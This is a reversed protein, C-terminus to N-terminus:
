MRELVVVRAAKILERKATNCVSLIVSVSRDMLALTMMLQLVLVLQQVEVVVVVVVAAAVVPWLM